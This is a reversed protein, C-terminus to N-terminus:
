QTRPNKQKSLFKARCDEGCFFHTQSEVAGETIAYAKNVQVGCVPDIVLNQKQYQKIHGLQLYVDLFSLLKQEVWEECRSEDVAGLSFSITDQKDYKV